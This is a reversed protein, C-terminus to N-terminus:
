RAPAGASTPRDDSRAQSQEHAHYSSRVLPGSEVHRFGMALAERKMFAFEDPTYYRAIPLHDKSPRLYQGITLVDVGASALDRYVALLEDMEEGLGVMVGSKTVTAPEIEKALGLLRLTREYRAGSRVVRYLRPVSETNHNLIEPRAEVVLRIAEENGQFDPILVEVQCGPAQRRIEEIVTVFARAGGLLDDDRNVSTIVAFKLGLAAVAEAVRRPEDLDIPAPRGKPVACFGCRRTCLNGLMMFTATRHHWCEGINPCQASECVTHLNLSRALKKLDHYNEGVPARARLWEPKPTARRPALDIQILEPAALEPSAAM